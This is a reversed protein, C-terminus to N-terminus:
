GGFAPGRRLPGAELLSLFGAMLMKAVAKMGVWRGRVGPLGVTFM